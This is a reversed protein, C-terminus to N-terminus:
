RTPNYMQYIIKYPQENPLNDQLTTCKTSSRTPNYMQYIIKYPQVSTPLHDQLTTHKVSSRTPNYMQNIIKYPQINSPHDQLTTCKASSRILNYMQCIIKYPQVNPLQDGQTTYKVFACKYHVCTACVCMIGVVCPNYVHHIHKKMYGEKSSSCMFEVSYYGPICQKM